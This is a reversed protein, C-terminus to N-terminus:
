SFTLIERLLDRYIALICLKDHKSNLQKACAEFDQDICYNNIDSSTFKLSNHVFVCVGGKHKLKRCYCSGLVYNEVLLLPLEEHYLHHETICLIHPHEFNLHGLLENMKYRLSRINQHYINITQKHLSLESLSLNYNSYNDMTIKTNLKKAAHSQECGTCKNNKDLILKTQLVGCIHLSCINQDCVCTHRCTM